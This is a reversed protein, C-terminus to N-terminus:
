KEEKQLIQVNVNVKIIEFKPNEFDQNSVEAEELIDKDSAGDDEFFLTAREIDEVSYVYMGDAMDFRAYKGSIKDKVIKAKMKVVYM